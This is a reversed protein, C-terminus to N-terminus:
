RSEDVEFPAHNQGDVTNNPTTKQTGWSRAWYQKLIDEGGWLSDIIVPFLKENKRRLEVQPNLRWLFLQGLESSLRQTFFPPQILEWKKSTTDSGGLIQAVTGTTREWSRSRLANERSVFCVSRATRRALAGQAGTGPVGPVGAGVGVSASFSPYEVGAGPGLAHRQHMKGLSTLVKAKKGILSNYCNLM